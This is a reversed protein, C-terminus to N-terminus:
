GNLGGAMGTGVRLGGAPAPVDDLLLRMLPQDAPTDTWTVPPGADVNTTDTRSTGAGILAAARFTQFYIQYPEGSTTTHDVQDIVVRYTGAALTVPTPFFFRIRRVTGSNLATLSTKQITATAGTVLVDSSNLIRARLNGWLTGTRYLALIEVGLANVSGLLPVKTGFSRTGYVAYTGNVATPYGQSEEGGDSMGLSYVPVSPNFEAFNARTTGNAAQLTISPIVSYETGGHHANLTHTTGGTTTLVVLGYETGVVRGTTPHSAFTFQQWGATPTVAAIAANADYLSGNPKGTTTDIAEIRVDVKGPSSITKWNLWVSYIDRTDLAVFRAAWGTNIPAMAYGVPAGVTVVAQWAIEDAGIFSHYLNGAAAM